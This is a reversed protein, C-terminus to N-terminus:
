SLLATSTREKGRRGAITLTSSASARLANVGIIESNLEITHFNFFSEPRESFDGIEPITM